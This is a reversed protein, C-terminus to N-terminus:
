GSEELALRARSIVAVTPQLRRDIPLWSLGMPLLSHKHPFGIVPHDVLRFQVSVVTQVPTLEALIV